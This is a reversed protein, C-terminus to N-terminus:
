ESYKVAKLASLCSKPIDTPTREPTHRVVLMESGLVMEVVTRDSSAGRQSSEWASKSLVDYRVWSGVWLDSGPVIVDLRMQVPAVEDGVTVAFVDRCEQTTVIAFPYTPDHFLVEGYVAAVPFAPDGQVEEVPAAAGVQPQPAATHEDRQELLVYTIGSGAALIIIFLLEALLKKSM